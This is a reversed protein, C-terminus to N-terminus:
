EALLTVANQYSDPGVRIDGYFPYNLETVLFLNIGVTATVGILLIRRLVGDRVGCTLCLGLVVVSSGLVALWVVGPLQQDHALRVSEVRLEGAQTLRGVADEVFARQAETRPELQGVTAVLGDLDRGVQLQSEGRIRLSWHDVVDRNYAIAESRIQEQVTADFVRSGEAIAVLNTAEAQTAQQASDLKGWLTVVCLGIAVSYVVVAASLMVGAADNHDGREWNPFTRRVITQLILMLAPLGGLFILISLWEPM